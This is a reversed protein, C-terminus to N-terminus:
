KKMVFALSQGMPKYSVPGDGQTHRTGTQMVAWLFEESIESLVRMSAPTWSRWDFLKRMNVMNDTHSYNDLESEDPREITHDLLAVLRGCLNWEKIRAASLIFGTGRPPFSTVLNFVEMKVADLVSKMEYKLAFSVMDDSSNFILTESFLVPQNVVEIVRLVITLNAAYEVGPDTLNLTAHSSSKDCTALM